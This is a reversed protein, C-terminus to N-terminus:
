LHACSVRKQAKKVVAQYGFIWKYAVLKNNPEKNWTLKPLGAWGSKYFFDILRGSSLSKLKIVESIKVFIPLMHESITVLKLYMSTDSM